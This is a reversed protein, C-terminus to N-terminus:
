ISTESTGAELLYRCSICESKDYERSQRWFYSVNRRRVGVQDPVTPCGGAEVWDIGSAVSLNIQACAQENAWAVIWIQM